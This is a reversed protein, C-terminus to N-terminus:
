PRGRRRRLGAATVLVATGVQVRVGRKIEAGVIAAQQDGRRRRPPEPHQFGERADHPQAIAQGVRAPEVGRGHVARQRGQLDAGVPDSLAAGRVDAADGGLGAARGGVARVEDSPHFGFRPELEGDDGGLFLRAQGHGAAHGQEVAIALRGQHHVDAAAGRLQRPDVQGLQPEVGLPARGMGRPQRDLGPEGDGDAHDGQGVAKGFAGFAALGPEPGHDLLDLRHEGGEVARAFQLLGEALAAGM